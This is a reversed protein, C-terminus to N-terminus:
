NGNKFIQEYNTLSYNELIEFNITGKNVEDEKEQYKENLWYFRFDTECETYDYGSKNNTIFAFQLCILCSSVLRIFKEWILVDLIFFTKTEEQYIGDLLTQTNSNHKNGGPM